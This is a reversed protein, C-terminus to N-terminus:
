CAQTQGVQQAQGVWYEATLSQNWYILMFKLVVLKEADRTLSNYSCPQAPLEPLSSTLCPPSTNLRSPLSHNTSIQQTDPGPGPSHASHHVLWLDRHESLRMPFGSLWYSLTRSSCVGFTLWEISFLCLACLVFCTSSQPTLQPLQGSDPACPLSIQILSMKVLVKNRYTNLNEGWMLDPWWSAVWCASPSAAPWGRCFWRQPKPSPTPLDNTASPKLWLEYSFPGWTKTNLHARVRM